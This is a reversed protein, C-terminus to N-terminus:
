AVISLRLIYTPRINKRKHELKTKDLSNESQSFRVGSSWTDEEVEFKCLCTAIVADAVVIVIPNM